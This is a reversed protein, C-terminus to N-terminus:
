VCTDTSRVSAAASELVQKLPGSSSRLVLCAAYEGGISLLDAASVWPAMNTMAVAMQKSSLDSFRIQAGGRTWEKQTM